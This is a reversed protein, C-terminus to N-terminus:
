NGETAKHVQLLTFSMLLSQQGEGLCLKSVKAEIFELSRELSTIKENLTAMRYRTTSELRTLGRAFHVWSFLFSLWGILALLSFSAGFSNLFEVIRKIGTAVTEVFERNEWDAQVAALPTTAM